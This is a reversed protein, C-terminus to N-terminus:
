RWGSEKNGSSIRDDIQYNIVRPTILFSSIEFHISLLKILCTYVCSNRKTTAYTLWQVDVIEHWRPELHKNTILLQQLFIERTILCFIAFFFIPSYRIKGNVLRFPFTLIDHFIIIKKTHTYWCAELTYLVDVFSSTKSEVSLFFFNIGKFILTYLCMHLLLKKKKEEKSSM